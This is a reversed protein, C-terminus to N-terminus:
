EKLCRIALGADEDKLWVLNLTNTYNNGFFEPALRSNSTTTDHSGIFNHNCTTWFQAIQHIGNSTADGTSYEGAESGGSQGQIEGVPLLNLGYLDIGPGIEFSSSTTLTGTNWHTRSKLAYVAADEVNRFYPNDSGTYRATLYSRIELSDYVFASDIDSIVFQILDQYEELTPIRWGVPALGRPDMLAAANYLKGLDGNMEDFDPYCWMPTGTKNGERWESESDAQPIFDGNRFRYVNLNADMWVQNGIAVEHILYNSNPYVLDPETGECSSFILLPLLPLIYLSRFSM